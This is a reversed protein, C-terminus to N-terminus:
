TIQILLDVFFSDKPHLVATADSSGPGSSSCINRFASLDRNQLGKRGPTLIFSAPICTHCVSSANQGSSGLGDGLAIPSYVELGDLVVGLTSILQRQFSKRSTITKIPCFKDVDPPNSSSSQHCPWTITAPQSLYLGRSFLLGKDLALLCHERLSVPQLLVSM